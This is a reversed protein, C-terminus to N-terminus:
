ISKNTRIRLRNIFSLSPVRIEKVSTDHINKELELEHILRKTLVRISRNYETDHQQYLLLNNRNKM